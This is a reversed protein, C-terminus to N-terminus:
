GIESFQARTRVENTSTEGCFYFIYLRYIYIYTYLRYIYKKKQQAINQFKKADLFNCIMKPFTIKTLIDFDNIYYHKNIIM